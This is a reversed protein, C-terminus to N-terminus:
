PTTAQVTKAVVGAKECVKAAEDFNPSPARNADLVSEKCQDKVASLLQIKPLTFAAYALFIVVLVWFGVKM